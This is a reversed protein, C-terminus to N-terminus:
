CAIIIGVARVNPPSRRVCRRDRVHAVARLADGGRQKVATLARVATPAGAAGGRLASRYTRLRRLTLLAGGLTLATLCWDM